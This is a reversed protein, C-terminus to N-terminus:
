LECVDAGMFAIFTMSASSVHYGTYVCFAVYSVCAARAANIEAM